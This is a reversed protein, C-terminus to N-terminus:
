WILPWDLALHYLDRRRSGPSIRGVLGSAIVLLLEIDVKGGISVLNVVRFVRCDRDQDRDRMGLRM